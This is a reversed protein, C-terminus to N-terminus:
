PNLGGGGASLSILPIPLSEKENPLSFASISLVTTM